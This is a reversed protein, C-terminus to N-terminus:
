TMRRCCSTGISLALMPSVTNQLVGNSTSTEQSLSPCRASMPSCFVTCPRHRICLCPSTNGKPERCRSENASDQATPCPPDGPSGFRWFVGHPFQCLAFLNLGSGAGNRQFSALLSSKTIAVCNGM